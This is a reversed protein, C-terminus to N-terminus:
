LTATVLSMLVVAYQMVVHPYHSGESTIFENGNNSVNHSDVHAENVM